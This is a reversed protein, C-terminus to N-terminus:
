VTQSSNYRVYKDMQFIEDEKYDSDVVFVHVFDEFEYTRKVFLDTLQLDTITVLGLKVPCVTLIIDKFKGSEISGVMFETSGTYGCDFKLKTNLNLMIEMSRESANTIRCTFNFSSGIKVTSNSEIM